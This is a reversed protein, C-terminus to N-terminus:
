PEDLGAGGAGDALDDKLAIAIDDADAVDSGADRDEAEVGVAASICRKAGATEGRQPIQRRGTGVGCAIEFAGGELGAAGDQDCALADAAAQASDAERRRARE